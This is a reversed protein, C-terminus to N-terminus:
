DPIDPVGGPVPLYESDLNMGNDFYRVRDMLRTIDFTGMLHVGVVNLSVDGVHLDIEGLPHVAVGALECQSVLFNHMTLHGGDRARVGIGGYSSLAGGAGAVRISRSLNVIANDVTVHANGYVGLSVFENEHVWLGTLNAVAQDSVLFAGSPTEFHSVVESYFDPHMKNRRLTVETGELRSDRGRLIIGSSENDNLTVSSLSAQVGDQLVVGTGYEMQGAERRTDRVTVARLELDGGRQYIGYRHAERIEVDILSVSSGPVLVQLAGPSPAGLLSFGTIELQVARTCAITSGIIPRSGPAAHLITNRDINLPEEYYGGEVDLEVLRSDIAKAADYAQSISWYPHASTGDPVYTGPIQRVIYTVEPGSPAPSPPPVRRGFSGASPFTRAFLKKNLELSKTTGQLKVKGNKVLDSLSRYSRMINTIAQSHEADSRSIRCADLYGVIKGMESTGIEGARYSQLFINQLEAMGQLGEAGATDIMASFSRCEGDSPDPPLNLHRNGSKIVQTWTDDDFDILRMTQITLGIPVREEQDSSSKFLISREPIRILALPLCVTGKKDTIWAIIKGEVEEENIYENERGTSAALLIRLSPDNVKKLQTWALVDSPKANSMVFSVYMPGSNRMKKSKSMTSWRVSLSSPNEGLGLPFCIEPSETDKKPRLSQCSLKGSWYSFYRLKKDGQDFSANVSLTVIRPTMMGGSVQAASHLQLMLTLLISAVCCLLLRTYTKM